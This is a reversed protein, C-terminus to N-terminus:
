KLLKEYDKHNMWDLIISIIGIQDAQVSYLLRWAKPLNYIRISKVEHKILVNKIGKKPIPTSGAMKTKVKYAKNGISRLVIVPISLTEGADIFAALPRPKVAQCDIRITFIGNDKGTIIAPIRVAAVMFTPTAM